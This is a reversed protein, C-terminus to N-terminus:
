FKTFYETTSYEKIFVLHGVPRFGVSKWATLFKEAQFFGYFSLCLSGPKLVRYVERFAPQVWWADNPDDNEYSRGDRSMYHVLYQPDTVVLDVSASPMRPMVKTCDGCIVKNIFEAIPEVRPIAGGHRPANVKAFYHQFM